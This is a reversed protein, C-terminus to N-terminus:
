PSGQAVQVRWRRATAGARTRPRAPEALEVDDVCVLVPLEVTGDSVRDVAARTAAHVADAVPQLPLQDVAVHVEVRDRTLVVGTVTGAAYHTVARVGAGTSMRAVGPVAQVDESIAIALRARADTDTLSSMM